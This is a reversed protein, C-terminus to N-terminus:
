FCFLIPRTTSPQFFRLDPWCFTYCYILYHPQALLVWRTDDPAWGDHANLIGARATLIAEGRWCLSSYLVLLIFLSTLPALAPSLLFLFFALPGSSLWSQHTSLSEAASHRARPLLYVTPFVLPQFLDVERLVSEMWNSLHCLHWSLILSWTPTTHVSLYM